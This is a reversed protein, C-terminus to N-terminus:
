LKNVVRKIGYKMKSSKFNLLYGLKNNTLRLYTLLQALHVDNLKDVTKLEVIVKDEVLLDIRYGCNLEMGKYNLPLQVEEVTKLKMENLEYVMCKKYASELLGPGLRSHVEFAAELLITGIENETLVKKVM